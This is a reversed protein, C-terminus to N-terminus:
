RKLTATPKVPVIVGGDSISASARSSRSSTESSPLDGASRSLGASAPRASVSAPTMTTPSRTGSSRSSSSRANPSVANPTMAAPSMTNPSMTAPPVTASPIPQYAASPNAALASADIADPNAAAIKAAVQSFKNRVAPDVRNLRQALQQAGIPNDRCLEYLQSVFKSSEVFNYDATKGVLPGLTRTLLDAGFNDLKMFVDMSVTITPQGARNTATSSHLVCVCRGDIDRAAMTGSDTGNGYYVHIDSTGYLLESRCTTGAGDQGTFVY